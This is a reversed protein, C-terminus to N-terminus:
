RCDASGDFCPMKADAHLMSKRCTWMSDHATDKSAKEIKYPIRKEELMIWVKECYPCWAAYDRYLVVRPETGDPADFLRISAMANANGRGAALEARFRREEESQSAALLHKLEDWSPATDQWPAAPDDTNTVPASTMGGRLVSTLGGIIGGLNGSIRIAGKRPVRSASRTVSPLSGSRLSSICTGAILGVPATNLVWASCLPITAVSLFLLNRM